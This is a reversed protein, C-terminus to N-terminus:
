WLFVATNYVTKPQNNGYAVGIDRIAKITAQQLDVNDQQQKLALKWERQDIEKMRVAIKESLLLADKYCSSAPEIKSLINSAREAAYRDQNANWINNAELLDVKCQREIKMTFIPKVADMAKDYCQKCVEPIEVLKSIAADFENQSTLSQAEKIIFDCKSNYYEIIRNKGEAIFTQFKSDETKFNKLAAIYAKTETEGVGKVSFNISSFKTGDTIDGIILTISLTYAHMPPATPTIDKTLLDVKAVLYFRRNLPSAGLGNKLIIQDLKTRLNSKALESMGDVEHVAANLSIRAIDDSSGLNNQAFVYSSCLILNLLIFKKM